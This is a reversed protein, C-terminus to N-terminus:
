LMAFCIFSHATRLTSKMNSAQKSRRCQTPRDTLCTNCLLGTETLICIKPVLGQSSHLGSLALCDLAGEHRRRQLGLASLLRHHQLEAGRDNLNVLTIGELYDFTQCFPSLPQREVHSPNRKVSGALAVGLRGAGAEIESMLEMKAAACNRRCRARYIRLQPWSSPLLLPRFQSHRCREMM